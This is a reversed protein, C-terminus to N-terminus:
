CLQFCLNQLIICDSFYCSVLATLQSINHFLIFFTLFSCSLNLVHEEFKQKFVTSKDRLACVSVALKFHRTYFLTRTDMRKWELWVEWRQCQLTQCLLRGGHRTYWDEPRVTELRQEVPVCCAEPLQQVFDPPTQQLNGFIRCRHGPVVPPTVPSLLLWQWEMQVSNHLRGALCLM